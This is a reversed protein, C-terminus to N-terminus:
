FSYNQYPLSMSTWRLGNISRLNYWFIQKVCQNMAINPMLSMSYQVWSPTAPDWILFSLYFSIIHFLTAAVASSRKNPLFATIMFAQGYLTMGYVLCFVFFLSMEVRKFVGYAAMGSMILSTILAISLFFIFIALYYLGDTLGMMKMGERSKSEKESAIKSTIYYFPILMIIMFFFPFQQSLNQSALPTMDIFERTYMPAFGIFQTYEPTKTKMSSGKVDRAVMETIFPFLSLAGSYDWKDWSDFDPSMVNLDFSPQTTYPM